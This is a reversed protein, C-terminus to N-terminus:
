RAEGEGKKHDGLAEALRRMGTLMRTKVTGLPAGTLSAVERQTYGGYYALALAERQMDPLERLAERVRDRRLRAWVAEEVGPAHAAENFQVVAEEAMQDRRRRLSEERRVVDVAKHHTVSLLWSAFGGRSRDFRSPDRWLSLFVEQVVDEALGEDGLIRRALAYAPRGYRAYLFDVAEPRRSALARVLSEDSTSSYLPSDPVGPNGSAVPPKTV